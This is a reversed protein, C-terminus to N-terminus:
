QPPPYGYQYWQGPAPTPVIQTPPTVAQGRLSIGGTGPDITIGSGRVTENPDSIVGDVVTGDPTYTVFYGNSCQFTTYYGNPSYWCVQARQQTQVYQVRGQPAQAPPYRKVPPKTDQSYPERKIEGLPTPTQGYTDYMALMMGIIVGLGTYVITRAKM